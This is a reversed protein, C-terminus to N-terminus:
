RFKMLRRVAHNAETKLRMFCIGSSVAAGREDKGEWIVMHTGAHLADDHEHDANISGAVSVVQGM